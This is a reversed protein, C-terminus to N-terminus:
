DKKGLMRHKIISLKIRAAKQTYFASDRLYGWLDHHKRCYGHYMRRWEKAAPIGRVLPLPGPRPCGAWHVFLGTFQGGNTDGKTFRSNNGGWLWLDDLWTVAVGRRIVFWNLFGQDTMFLADRSKTLPKPDTQHTHFASAHEFDVLMQQWDVANRNSAFMGTNFPMQLTIDYEPDFKRILDAKGVMYEFTKM